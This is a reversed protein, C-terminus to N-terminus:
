FTKLRYVSLRNIGPLPYNNRYEIEDKIALIYCDDISQTETITHCYNSHYAGVSGVELSESNRVYLTIWHYLVPKDTITEMDWWTKGGDSSGQIM